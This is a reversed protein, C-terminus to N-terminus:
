RQLILRVGGGFIKIFLPVKKKLAKLGARYEPLQKARRRGAFDSILFALLDRPVGPILYGGRRPTRLTERRYAGWWTEKPPLNIYHAPVFVAGGEDFLEKKPLRHAHRQGNDDV